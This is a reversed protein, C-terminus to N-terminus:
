DQSTQKKQLKKRTTKPLHVSFITQGDLAALSINGGFVDEIFRKTLYLGMGMGDKKTSYFPEFIRQRQSPKVGRGSDTVTLLVGDRNGSLGIRVLREPGNTRRTAPYSDIANKILITVAQQFLVKEGAYPIPTRPRTWELTVKAKDAVLQLGAVVQAIEQAIDFKERSRHGKMQERATDFALRLQRVKKKARAVTRGDTQAQINDLELSLSSLKNAMDHMHATSIEGIEALRYLQRIRDAEAVQLRQNVQMLYYHVISCAILLAHLMFILAVMTDFNHPQPAFVYVPHIDGRLEITRFWLAIVTILETTIVALWFGYVASAFIVALVFLLAAGAGLGVRAMMATGLGIYILILAIGDFTNPKKRSVFYMGATVLAAVTVYPWTVCAFLNDALIRAGVLIVALVGLAVATGLTNIRALDHQWGSDVYNKFFQTFQHTRRQPVKM